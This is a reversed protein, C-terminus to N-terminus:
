FWEVNQFRISSSTSSSHYLITEVHYQKSGCLDCTVLHAPINQSYFRLCWLTLLWDRVKFAASATGSKRQLKSECGCLGYKICLHTSDSPIHINKINRAGLQWKWDLINELRALKVWCMPLILREQRSEWYTNEPASLFTKNVFEYPLFILIWVWFLWLSQQVHLWVELKPILAPQVWHSPFSEKELRATKWVSFVSAACKHTNTNEGLKACLISYEASSICLFMAAAILCLSFGCSEHLSCPSSWALRKALDSGMESSDWRFCFPVPRVSLDDEM